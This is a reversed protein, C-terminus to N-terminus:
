RQSTSQWICNGGVGENGCVVVSGDPFTIKRLLGFPSGDRTPHVEMMLIQGIANEFIAKRINHSAFRNPPLTEVLWLEAHGSDHKVELSVEIHPNRLDIKTLTGTVVVRKDRDYQSASHHAAASGAALLCALPIATVCIRSTTAAGYKKRSQSHFIRLMGSIM